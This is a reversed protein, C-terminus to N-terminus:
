MNTYVSKYAFLCLSLSRIDAQSSDAPRHQNGRIRRIREERIRKEAPRHQNGQSASKGSKSIELSSCTLANDGNGGANGNRFGMGFGGFFHIRVVRLFHIRAGESSGLHRGPTTQLLSCSFVLSIFRKRSPAAPAEDIGWTPGRGM